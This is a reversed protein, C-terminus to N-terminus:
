ECHKKQVNVGGVISAVDLENASRSAMNTSFQQYHGYDKSSIWKM